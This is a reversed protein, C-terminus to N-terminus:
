QNSVQHVPSSDVPCPHCTIVQANAKGLQELPTVCKLLILLMCWRVIVILVWNGRSIRLDKDLYTTLLWSKTREGPIQIKLPAQGSIAGALSAVAEQLPNLSQQVVSLNINQGFIEVSEPLSVNSKIKPPQFSGEKFQVQIRSPSRVEFNASATSTFTSFPTSFTISNDITLTTNSIQQCIKDVKLLPTTRWQWFHYYSLFHLTCPSFELPKLYYLSLTPCPFALLQLHPSCRDASYTSSQQQSTDLYLYPLAQLGFCVKITSLAQLTSCDNCDETLHPSGLTAPPFLHASTASPFLHGLNASLLHPSPAFIVFLVGQFLGLYHDM